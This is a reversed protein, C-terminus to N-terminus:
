VREQNRMWTGMEKQVGPGRSPVQIISTIPPRDVASARRPGQFRLLLLVALNKERKKKKKTMNSPSEKPWSRPRSGQLM